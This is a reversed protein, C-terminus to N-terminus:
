KLIRARWIYWGIWAFIIVLFVWAYDAKFGEDEGVRAGAVMTWTAYMMLFMVMFSLITMFLVVLKFQSETNASTIKVPYNISNPAMRPLLILALSIVVTIVPLIWITAKRGWGDPTGSANFHVPIIDPLETYVSGLWTVWGLTLLGLIALSYNRDM